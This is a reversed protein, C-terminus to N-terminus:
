ITCSFFDEIVEELKGEYDWQGLWEEIEASIAYNKDYDEESKWGGEEWGAVDWREIQFVEISDPEISDPQFANNSLWEGRKFECYVEEEEQQFILYIPIIWGTFPYGEASKKTETLIEKLSMRCIHIKM